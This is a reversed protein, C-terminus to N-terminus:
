NTQARLESPGWMWYCLIIWDFSRITVREDHFGGKSLQFGTCRLCWLIPNKIWGWFPLTDSLLLPVFLLPWCICLALSHKLPAMDLHEIKTQLTAGPLRFLM